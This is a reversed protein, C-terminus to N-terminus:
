QEDNWQEMAMTAYYVFQELHEEAIWGTGCDDLQEDGIFIVYMKMM